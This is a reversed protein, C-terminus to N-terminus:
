CSELCRECDCPPLALTSPVMLERISVTHTPTVETRTGDAALHYVGITMEHPRRKRNTKPESM